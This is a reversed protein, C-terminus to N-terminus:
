FSSASIFPEHAFPRPQLKSFCRLPDSMINPSYSRLALWNQRKDDQMKEARWNYHLKSCEILTCFTTPLSACSCSVEVVRLGDDARQLLHWQLSGNVYRYMTNRLKWIVNSKISDFVQLSRLPRPIVSGNYGQRQASTDIVSQRTPKYLYRM